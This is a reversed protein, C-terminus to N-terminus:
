SCYDELLKKLNIEGKVEIGKNLNMIDSKPLSSTLTDTTLFPLIEGKKYVVIRNNESKIVYVQESILDEQNKTNEQVEASTQPAFFTMMCVCAILIIGTICVLRKM